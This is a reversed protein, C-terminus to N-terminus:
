PTMYSIGITDDEYLFQVSAGNSLHVIFGSGDKAEDTVKSFLKGKMKTLIYNFDVRRWGGEDTWYRFEAMREIRALTTSKRAIRDRERAGIVLFVTTGDRLRSIKDL